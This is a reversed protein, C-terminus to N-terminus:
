RVPEVALIAGRAGTVRVRAGQPLEPGEVRWVSDDIRIRGVGESIPEVLTAERGLLRATRSNILVEDEASGGAARHRSFLQWGGVLALSLLGFLGFQLPGGIGIQFVTLGTLLAAGGLWVLFVGPALLELGLLLVGFIIWSWAPNAIIFDAIGM